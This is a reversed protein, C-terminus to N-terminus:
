HQLRNAETDSTGDNQQRNKPKFLSTPLVSVKSTLSSLLNFHKVDNKSEIKALIFLERTADYRQEVEAITFANVTPIIGNNVQNVLERLEPINEQIRILNKMIYSLEFILLNNVCDRIRQITHSEEPIQQKIINLESMLRCGFLTQQALQDEGVVRKLTDLAKTATPDTCNATNNFLQTLLFVFTKHTANNFSPQKAETSM